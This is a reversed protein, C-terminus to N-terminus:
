DERMRITARCRESPFTDPELKRGGYTAMRRDTRVARLRPSRCLAPRFRDNQERASLIGLQFRYFPPM